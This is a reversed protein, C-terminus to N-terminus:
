RLITVSGQRRVGGNAPDIIYYYVGAPLPRGNMAGDWPRAYGTNNFVIKGYRDFVQVRSGPYDSLHRIEWFDNIGDGNPSFANPIILAPLVTVLVSDRAECGATNTATLVYWQNAPPNAFPNTVNIPSLYQTPIWSFTVGQGVSGEIQVPNGELSVKDPGANVQPLPSVNITFSTDANCGNNGTYTYRITNAGSNANAPNFIGNQVGPGAYTGQGAVGNSVAVIQLPFPPANRCVLPPESTLVLIPTSRINIAKVVAPISCYPSSVSLSVNYAGPSAFIHTPNAVAQTTGDGFNWSYQLPLVPNQSVQSTFQLQYGSCTDGTYSFTVSPASVIPTITRSFVDSCGKNTTAKLQVSYPQNTSFFHQPNTLTSTNNQSQPNGFNWEWTMNTNIQGQLRSINTFQINGGPMCVTDHSFDPRPNALVKLIMSDRSACGPRDSFATELIYQQDIDMEGANTLTAVPNSITANSLGTAPTWRYVRMPVPALGIQASAGSCIEADNGANSSPMETFIRVNRISHRDNSGGTSATFGFYGTFNFTQFGTLFETGNILVRINGEDYEVRCRHYNNSRIFSIAGDNNNRTPQGNCEDYGPGWRIQIKPVADSGCNRWTDLVIKLGNATAPIGIGGGAVFGSPPVDLYCFALGDAMTGDFMRFDFEAVWKKCQALNIPTNYFIAGSQTNVPDTLIIEGNAPNGPINGRKAAGQMNWGNTNIPIGTLSAFVFDQAMLAGNACIFLYTYIAIKLNKVM